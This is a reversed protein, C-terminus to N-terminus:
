DRATLVIPEDDTIAITHGCSSTVRRPRVSDVVIATGVL